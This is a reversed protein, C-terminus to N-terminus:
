FLIEVVEEILFELIMDSVDFNTQLEQFDYFNWLYDQESVEFAVIKNLIEQRQKREIEDSTKSNEAKIAGFKFQNIKFFRNEIFKLIEQKNKLKKCPFHVFWPLNLETNRMEELTQDIFDFLLKHFVNVTKSECFNKTYFINLTLFSTKFEFFSGFERIETLIQLPNLSVPNNLCNLLDKESCDSLITFIYDLSSKESLDQLIEEYKEQIEYLLIATILEESLIRINYASFCLSESLIDEFVTDELLSVVSDITFDSLDTNSPM